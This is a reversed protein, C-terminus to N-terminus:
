RRRPVDASRLLGELPQGGGSRQTAADEVEPAAGALVREHGRSEAQLRGPDVGRRGRDGDCNSFRLLTAQGNKRTALASSSGAEADCELGHEVSAEEVDEVVAIAGSRRCGALPSEDPRGDWRSYKLSRRAPSQPGRRTWVSSISVANESPHSMLEISASVRSTVM